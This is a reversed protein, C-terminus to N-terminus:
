TKLIACLVSWFGAGALLVLSLAVQIGVLMPRLSIGGSSVAGSQREALAYNRHALRAPPCSGSCLSTVADSGFHLGTRTWRFRSVVFESAADAPLYIRLLIRDAVFALALGSRRRRRISALEGCFSVFSERAAPASRLVFAFEARPRPARWCCIALNACALLLVARHAWLLWLPRRMSEGLKNESGSLSLAIGFFCSGIGATFTRFFEPQQVEFELISHL